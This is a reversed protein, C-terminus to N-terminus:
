VAVVEGPRSRVVEDVSSGYGSGSRGFGSCGFCGSGGRRLQYECRRRWEARGLLVANSCRQVVGRQLVSELLFIKLMM